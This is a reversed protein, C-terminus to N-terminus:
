IMDLSMSAGLRSYGAIRWLRARAEADTSTQCTMDYDLYIIITQHLINNHSLKVYCIRNYYLM